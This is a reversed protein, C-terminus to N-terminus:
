TTQATLSKQFEDPISIRHERAYTLFDVITMPSRTSSCQDKRDVEYFYVKHEFLLYGRESWQDVHGVTFHPCDLYWIHVHNEM